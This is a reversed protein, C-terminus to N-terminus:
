TTREHSTDLWEHLAVFGWTPSELVVAIEAATPLDFPTWDQDLISLSPPHSRPKYSM